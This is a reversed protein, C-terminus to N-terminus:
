VKNILNKFIYQKVDSSLVINILVRTATAAKAAIEPAKACTEIV